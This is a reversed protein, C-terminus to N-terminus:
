SQVHFLVFLKVSILDKFHYYFTTFLLFTYSLEVLLQLTGEKMKEVAALLPKRNTKRLWQLSLFVYSM